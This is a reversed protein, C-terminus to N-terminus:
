EGGGSLRIRQGEELGAEVEIWEANRRGFSPEARREGLLEGVVVSIEGSELRMAELPIALVGEAREVEIEGRVRMGPLMREVDTQDLDVSLRVIKSPDRWSKRQVTGRISSVVGTFESDPYADLRLRTRQGLEIRGIEAEDVHGAVRLKSLDPVELVKAARWVSDGVKKKEGRWNSRYILTGARPTRVTMAEIQAEIEVVRAQARDRKEELASIEAEAQALAQERANEIAAIELEALRHDIELTELERRAELEEPVALKLELRRLEARAEALRLDESRLEAELDKQRKELNAQASERESRSSELRRELDSTDFRMVPQGLEVSSAEPALFAIKFNWQGSVQPPGLLASEVAELEGEVEVGVVLDRREVRAWRGDEGSFAGATAFGLAAVVAIGALARGWRV